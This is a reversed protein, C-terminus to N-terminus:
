RKGITMKLGHKMPLTLALSYTITQNEVLKFSYRRLIMIICVLAELTALNQGKLFFFLRCVFSM